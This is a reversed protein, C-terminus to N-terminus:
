AVTAKGMALMVIAYINATLVVLWIAYSLITMIWGNSFDIYGEPDLEDPDNTPVFVDEDKYSSIEEGPDLRSNVAPTPHISSLAEPSQVEQTLKNSMGPTTFTDAPPSSPSPFARPPPPKQVRM